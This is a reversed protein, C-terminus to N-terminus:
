EAFFLLRKVFVGLVWGSAVGTFLPMGLSKTPRQGFVDFVGKEYHLM